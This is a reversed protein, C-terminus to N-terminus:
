ESLLLSPPKDGGVPLKGRAAPARPTRRGAHGQEEEVTAPARDAAAPSWGAAGDHGLRRARQAAPQAEGLLALDGERAVGMGPDGVPVELLRDVGDEPRAEQREGLARVVVPDALHFGERRPREGGVAAQDVVVGVEQAVGDPRRDVRDRGRLPERGAFHNTRRM